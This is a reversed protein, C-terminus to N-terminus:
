RASYSERTACSVRPAAPLSRAPARWAVSPLSSTCGATFASGDPKLHVRLVTVRDKTGYVNGSPDHRLYVMDPHWEDSVARKVRNFFTAYKFKKANLSTTEGRDLEGLYDPSGTGKAIARRLMEETPHLDPQPVGSRGPVGEEGLSPATMPRGPAGPLGPRQQEGDPALDSRFLM